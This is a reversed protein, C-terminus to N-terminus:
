RGYPSLSQPTGRVVKEISEAASPDTGIPSHGPLLELTAADEPDVHGALELGGREPGGRRRRYRVAATGVIATAAGVAFIAAM